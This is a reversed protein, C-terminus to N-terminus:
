STTFNPFYSRVIGVVAYTATRTVAKFDYCEFNAPSRRAGLCPSPIHAIPKRRRLKLSPTLDGAVLNILSASDTAQLTQVGALEVMEIASM